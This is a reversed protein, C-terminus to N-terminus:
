STLCTGMSVKDFSEDSAVPPPEKNDFEIFPVFVVDDEDIAVVDDIDVDHV